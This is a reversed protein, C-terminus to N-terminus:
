SAASWKLRYVWHMSLLSQGPARKQYIPTQPRYIWRYHLFDKRSRPISHPRYRTNQYRPRYAFRNSM